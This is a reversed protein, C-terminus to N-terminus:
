YVCCGHWARFAGLGKIHVQLMVLNPVVLTVCHRLVDCGLMLRAQVIGTCSIRGIRGTRCSSVDTSVNVPCMLQVRPRM